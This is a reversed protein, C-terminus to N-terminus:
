KQTPSTSLNIGAANGSEPFSQFCKWIKSVGLNILYYGWFSHKWCIWFKSIRLVNESFLRESNDLNQVVQFCEEQSNFRRANGIKPFEQFMEVSIIKELQGFKPCMPRITKLINQLAPPFLRKSNNPIRVCDSLINELQLM